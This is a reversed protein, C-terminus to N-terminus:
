GAQAFARRLSDKVTPSPKLSTPNSGTGPAGQISKTGKDTQVEPAPAAAQAPQPAPNLLEAREYAKELTHGAKIEAAVTEYLEEFRPHAAAFATVQQEVASLRQQEITSTVGGLQQKLGAIENQLNRITADSKSQAQDPTQGMVHAAVDKLSYGYRQVLDDLGGLFDKELKTDIAIYNALATKVTTKHKEALAHFDKLEDWKTAADKYKELGAELEKVARHVEAKVPEPATEWAAKADPSFRTPAEKHPSDKVPEPKAEVTKEAPKDTTFKGTEDRPRESKEPEKTEPKTEAKVEKPTEKPADKKESAEKESKEVKEAAAKLADRASLPKEEKVEAAVPESHVPNPADVVEPEPSPAAEAPADVGGDIDSM